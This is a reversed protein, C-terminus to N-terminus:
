RYQRAALRGMVGPLLANGWVILRDLWRLVVTRRHRTTARVIAEAVQEPPMEPLSSSRRSGAGLRKANFETQTRGLLFDTVRINDAALELRLSHALSTVFAKSAAYLAAYPAVLNFMISSVTIIHGGGAERMAPLAARVSHLVGDINTRLLTEVDSWDADALPGRLGVGANAVLVDLRGYAQVTQAVAQQMAEADRVDAVIPLFAGPLDAMEAALAELRDARRATGAVQAGQAAFALATARGVGSSVGTILVVRTM